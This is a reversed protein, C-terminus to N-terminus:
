TNKVNNLLKILKNFDSMSNILVAQQRLERAGAFGKLYSAFFKRMELFAKSKDYELYYKLHEQMIKALEKHSPNYQKQTKLEKFIWPKQMAMRSIMIGKIPSKKLEIHATKFDNIDGNLIVPIKLTNAIKHISEWDSIGTYRQAVTRGHITIADIGISELKQLFPLVDFKKNGLRTKVSLQGSYNERISKIFKFAKDYDKLFASGCMSKVIKPAPCGLNIDIGAPKLKEDIVKIALNMIEADYGFVQVIVPKEKSDFKAIKLTESENYLVANSSIMPTFMIDAGYKKCMKMLPQTSISAMPGLIFVPKKIKSWTFKM